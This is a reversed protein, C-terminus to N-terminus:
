GQPVPVVGPAPLAASFPKNGPLCACQVWLSMCINTSDTHHWNCLHYHFKFQSSVRPWTSHKFYETNM